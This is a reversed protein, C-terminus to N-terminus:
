PKFAGVYYSVLFVTLPLLVIIGSFVTGISPTINEPPNLESKLPIPAKMAKGLYKTAVNVRRYNALNWEFADECQAAVFRYPRYGYDRHLTFVKYWYLSPLMIPIAGFM